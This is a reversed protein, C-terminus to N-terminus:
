QSSVTIAGNVTELTVKAGGAGVTGRMSSGIYRGKHVEIGLDNRLSGNVTEAFLDVGAGPALHLDISGNVSEISIEDGPRSADLTVETAGNVSEIAIPGALDRADISGNVCEVEVGGLVGRILLSGNVLELEAFATRPVTLTYEVSMRGGGGRTSPLDTEIDIAAQTAEIEIEMKALLDASSAKKVAEVRVENRDWVDVSVDGNVNELSVEVGSAVPYTQDFYEEYPQEAVAMGAASIVFTCVVGFVIRKLM